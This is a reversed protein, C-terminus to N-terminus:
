ATPPDQDPQPYSLTATAAESIEKAALKLRDAIALIDQASV